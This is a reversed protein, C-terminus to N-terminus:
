NIGAAGIVEIGSPKLSKISQIIMSVEQQILKEYEDDSIKPNESLRDWKLMVEYANLSVGAPALGESLWNVKHAVVTATESNFELSVGKENIDSVRDWFEQIAADSFEDHQLEILKM